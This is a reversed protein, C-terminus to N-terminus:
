SFLKIYQLFEPGQRAMGYYKSPPSIFSRARRSIAASRCSIV